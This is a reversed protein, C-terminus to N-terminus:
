TTIRKNKRVRKKINFFKNIKEEKRQKTQLYIEKKRQQVRDRQERFKAANQKSVLQRYNQNCLYTMSKNKAIMPLEKMRMMQLQTKKEKSIKLDFKLFKHYEIKEFRGGLNEKKPRMGQFKVKIATNVSNLCLIMFKISYDSVMKSQNVADITFKNNYYGMDFEKHTPRKNFRILVETKANSGLIQFEM